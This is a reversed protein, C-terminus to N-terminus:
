ELELSLTQWGRKDAAIAINLLGCYALRWGEFDAWVFDCRRPTVHTALGFDPEFDDQEVFDLLFGGLHALHAWLDLDKRLEEFKAPPLDRGFRYIALSPACDWKQPVHVQVSLSSGVHIDDRDPIQDLLAALNVLPARECTAEIKVFSLADGAHHSQALLSVLIVFAWSPANDVSLRYRVAGPLNLKSSVKCRSLRYKVGNNLVQRDIALSVLEVMEEFPRKGISESTLVTHIEVAVEGSACEPPLQM